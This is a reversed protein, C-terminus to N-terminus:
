TGFLPCHRGARYLETHISGMDAVFYALKRTFGPRHVLIIPLGNPLTHRFVTESLEPYFTKEM